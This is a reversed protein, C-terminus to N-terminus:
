LRLFLFVDKVGDFEVFKGGRAGKKPISAIILGGPKVLKVLEGEVNEIEPPDSFVTIAAISDFSRPRFPLSDFSCQVLHDLGKGRAVKLMNSSIDAAVTLWGLRRMKLSLEGTGSGLDLLIGRRNSLSRVVIEHKRGQEEGYVEDYSDALLDYFEKVKKRDKM